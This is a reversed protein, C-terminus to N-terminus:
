TFGFSLDNIDIIQKKLNFFFKKECNTLEIENKLEEENQNNNNLKNKVSVPLYKGSDEYITLTDYYVLPQLPLMYTMFLSNFLIRGIHFAISKRISYSNLGSLNNLESSKKFEDFNGNKIQIQIEQKYIRYETNKFLDYQYDLFFVQNQILKLNTLITTKWNFIVNKFFTKDFKEKLLIDNFENMTEENFDKKKLFNLPKWNLNELFLNKHNENNLKKEKWIKYFKKNLMFIKEYEFYDYCDCFYFMLIDFLLELPIENLLCNM